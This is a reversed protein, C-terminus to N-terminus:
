KLLSNAILALKKSAGPELKKRIDLYNSLIDERYVRDRDIKDLEVMIEIQDHYTPQIFEKVIPNEGLKKGLILNVLGIYEINVLKRMVIYTLYSLKYVIVMPVMMLALELTITGSATIAKKCNKVENRNSGDALCGHMEAPIMKMMLDRNKINSYFIKIKKFQDKNQKNPKVCDLMTYLNNKIESERSGPFIGLDYKRDEFEINNVQLEPDDALPHGVYTVKDTFPKFIEYEFPFVVALHDVNDIIKKIRGKRWAWVQPAIYFLVPINHQKAFKAIKLNFEVYDVLIILNPKNDEIYKKAKFLANRIESYKSIVETLGVVSINESNYILNLNKSILKEQGIGSFSLNSNINRHEEVYRAAHMDGSTEGTIIFIESM